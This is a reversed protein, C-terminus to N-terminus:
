GEDDTHAVLKQKVTDAQATEHYHPRSMVQYGQRPRVGHRKATGHCIITANPHVLAAARVSVVLVFLDRFIAM